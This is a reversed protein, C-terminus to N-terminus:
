QLPFAIIGLAFKYCSANLIILRHLLNKGKEQKLCPFLEIVSYLLPVDHLMDVFGSSNESM